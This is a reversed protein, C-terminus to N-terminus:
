SALLTKLAASVNTPDNKKRIFVWPTKGQQFEVDAEIGDVWSPVESVNAATDGYNNTIGTQLEAATAGCFETVSVRIRRTTTPLFKIKDGGFVSWGAPPNNILTNDEAMSGISVFTGTLCEALQGKTVGNAPAFSDSFVFGINRFSYSDTAEHRRAFRFTVGNDFTKAYFAGDPVGGWQGVYQEDVFNCTPTLAVNVSASVAGVGNTNSLKFTYIGVVTPIYLWDNFGGSTAIEEILDLGRFVLIGGPYAARGPIPRNIGVNSVVVTPAPNVVPNVTVALSYATPGVSTMLEFNYTGAQTPVYSWNGDNQSSPITSIIASDRYVRIDLGSEATGLIAINVLRANLAPPTTISLFSM